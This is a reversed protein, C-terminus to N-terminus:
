EVIRALVDGEGVVEGLEVIWHIKGSSLAEVRFFTKMAEVEALADGVAVVAGEEVHLLALTGFTTALVDM